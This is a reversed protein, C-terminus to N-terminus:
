NKFATGLHNLKPFGVPCATCSMGYPWSFAPRAYPNRVALFALAIFLWLATNRGHM